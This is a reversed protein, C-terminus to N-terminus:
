EQYGSRMLYPIIVGGVKDFRRVLGPRAGAREAESVVDVSCQDSCPILLGRRVWQLHVSRPFNPPLQRLHFVMMLGFVHLFTNFMILARCGYSDFIKGNVPALVTLTFVQVSVIWSVNSPSSSKWRGEQYYTQFVGISSIWGYSSFCCCFGGLVSTWARLGGDPFSTPAAPQEDREAEPFEATGTETKLAARLARSEQEEVVM